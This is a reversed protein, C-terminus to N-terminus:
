AGPLRLREGPYILAGNLHNTQEIASVAQRPDTNPYARTALQWLSEGPGVRVVRTGPNTGGFAVQMMLAGLVVAAM